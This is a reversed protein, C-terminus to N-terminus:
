KLAQKKVVVEGETATVTAGQSPQCAPLGRCAVGPLDELGEVEDESTLSVNAEDETDFPHAQKWWTVMLGSVELVDKINDADTVVSISPLWYTLRVLLASYAIHGPIHGIVTVM